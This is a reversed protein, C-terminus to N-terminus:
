YNDNQSYMRDLLVGTEEVELMLEDMSLILTWAAIAVQPDTRHIIKLRKQWEIPQSEVLKTFRSFVENINKISEM